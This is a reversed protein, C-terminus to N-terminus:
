QDNAQEKEKHFFEIGMIHGDRDLDVFMGDGISLTCAYQGSENLYLYSAGAQEDSEYRYGETQILLTALERLTFQANQLKRANADDTL